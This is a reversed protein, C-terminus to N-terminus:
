FINFILIERKTEHFPKKKGWKEGKKNIPDKEWLFGSKQYDSLKKLQQRTWCVEELVM